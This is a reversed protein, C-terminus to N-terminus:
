RARGGDIPDRRVVGSQGVAEPRDAPEIGDDETRSHAGDCVLRPGETASRGADDPSARDRAHVSDYEM